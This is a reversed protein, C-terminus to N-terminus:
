SIKSNLVAGLPEEAMAGHFVVLQGKLIVISPKSPLSMGSFPSWGARSEVDSQSFVKSADPDTVILDARLGPRIEGRDQLGAILAPNRSILRSLEVLDISQQGAISLAASVLTDLGPLGAPAQKFDLMKEEILHPAHDSEINDILGAKLANLLAMRHNEGRIPPNVKMIQGLREYDKWSFALHHPTVGVSLNDPKNTKLMKTEPDSSIHLYHCRRSTARALAIVEKLGKLAATVSRQMPHDSIRIAPVSEELVSQLEGHFLYLSDIEKMVRGAQDPTVLMAATTAGFFAKIGLLMGADRVKKLEVLNDPTMGLYFGIDTYTRGFAQEIKYKLADLSTTPPLNNPMDFVTTIGALLAAATGSSIDEKHRWGPDRLHVHIDVAGPMIVQGHCDFEFYAPHGQGVSSILGKDISIDGNVIGKPTVIRGNRLTIDMLVEYGCFVIYNHYM